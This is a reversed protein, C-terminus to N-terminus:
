DRTAIIRLDKCQPVKSSNKSKYVIKVAFVSFAAASITYEIERFDNGDDTTPIAASPNSLTWNLTDILDDDTHARYYVEIDTNSPRNVDVYIHIKNSNNKLRINKTLYKALSSGLKPDTEATFNEVKNFGTSGTPITAVPDNIRNNVTIVSCRELDIIPSVYDDTSTLTGRLIFSKSNNTATNQDESSIVRPNDISFNRNIIIPEYTTQVSYPTNATDGLSLGSTMKVGWTSNTVPTNISQVNAYFTNYLHNKTGYVDIGGIIGTANAATAVTIEYSDQEVNSVIHTKNFDAAPIGNLTGSVGSITTFSQIGLTTEMLGHNKQFIRVVASTNLTRIPDKALRDKPLNENIMVLESTKTIDYKARNIKFKLDKNQDPTWTSANQSSFLVGAYPQKSIRKGSDYDNEGIGAYWLQYDTSNAMIVFCYEKGSQLYVPSDFKFQTSLNPSAVAGAATLDVVNIHGGTGNMTVGGVVPAATTPNLTVQSFPVIRATPMGQDMERLEFTVPVNPSKTHFYLEISTLTAGYPQKEIDLLFSQALPDWWRTASTVSTNTITRNGVVQRQNLMPVRTSITVNEKTEILGKAIYQTSASTTETASSNNADDSLRFVRTGTKFRRVETNPIWISGTVEGASNTILDTKGQPHTTDGTGAVLAVPPTAGNNYNTLMQAAIEADTGTFNVFVNDERAWENIDVGDFFAYIKTNPKMRTAKFSVFRARVFPVFNIEVVRDGLNTKLTSPTNFTQIGTRSQQQTTITRTTTTAWNGGRGSQWSTRNIGTWNTQWSNWTTGMADTANIISMMADYIGDQNVTVQPRNVTDKWEDQSPSLEVAGTWEFVQYPNVNITSSAKNQNLLTDEAYPLTILDGTKQVESSMAASYKLGANNEVFLPRLRNNDRDISVKYEPSLVNGVSHSNFSDVVFGSKVRTLQSAGIGEVIEKNAAESELLSLATYYELNDIRRELKGIDRMTYRKNDILEVQVEEPSLTYAPVTIHYLIMSEKPSDPLEPELASVGKIVGFNGKADLFIKDLRNLYYQIDTTFTTNPTPCTSISSGVGTFNGGSNDIKPRFDIASRLEIEDGSNNSVFKPIDKYDVVNTYSDVSFFDGTGIHTFYSYVVMLRGTPVFTTDSRLQCRAKDYFNDRQGDDLLYHETVDTDTVVADTTFNASMYINQIKYGDSHDLEFDVLDAASSASSTLFQKVNDAGGTTLSKLKHILTRRTEAILRVITGSAINAMSVTAVNATGNLAVGTIPIIKGPVSPAGGSVEVLTWTTSNYPNFTENTQSTFQATGTSGVTTVTATSKNTTITDYIYDFSPAAGTTDSDCTKVRNFPLKYVMTNNSPNSLSATADSIDAEFNPTGATYVSKLQSFLFAGDMKIDFLFLRYVAAATGKTGSVHHFSRVRAQGIRTNVVTGGVVYDRLVLQGYELIDPIGDINKIDIYNGIEVPVAANKFVATDRAKDLSVNITSISEIEYGQVYAKSPGLGASLKVPDGPTNVATDEKIDIDFPRVTYNGSEDFTRRALTDEIISYDTNRVQKTVVGDDIQILLLFDDDTGTIDSGIAITTLETKIQHRHAGPAAYNLTGNANDNLSSDESSTIISETIRLGVDYSPNQGYKELVLQDAQVVVFTGKIYYIGYEIFAVSGFGTPLPDSSGAAPTSSLQFTHGSADTVKLYEDDVYTKEQTLGSKIYQIYVTNPETATAKAVAVIVAQLGTTTGTYSSDTAELTKGVIDDLDAGSFSQLRIYDVKTSASVHGPIVMAGEKFLHNGMSTVQNQLISQIQTLERAQVAHSPRFLIKNYKEKPSLGDVTTADAFDDFYPKINFKLSM